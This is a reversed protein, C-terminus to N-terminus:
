ALFGESLLLVTKRGDMRSLGNMVTALNQLTLTTSIRAADSMRRAKERILSRVDMAPSNCAGPDDACARQCAAQFVAQDGAIAIRIGEVETLRPWKREEFLRANSKPSSKADRVSKILEERVTTLRNNVMAQNVVVGGIDGDKFHTSFLELAAAQVRKFGAPTLHQDDFFAIFIRPAVRAAASREGIAARSGEGASTTGVRTNGSIVYFVDVRQA